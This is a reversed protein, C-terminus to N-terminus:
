RTHRLDALVDPLLPLLDGALLGAEGHQERWREGAGAHLYAGCIAADVPSLGQALVGAICGTLVDGTGAVALASNAYPLVIGGNEPYAVVSFAGKLLVIHGWRAAYELAREMRNSQIDQVSVGTLRAMEGPHPTLISRAPLLAPWNPLNALLNLADADVILRAGGAKHRLVEFLGFLFPKTAEDQGLGPGVIIAHRADLSAVNAALRPLAEPSLVDATGSLTLFTAERCLVAAGAQIAHPVALTVLGAGVRYAATAALTPAGAYDSCGGVVLVKGYSGKNASPSRAPLKARILEGDALDLKGTAPERAGPDIGIPVVVLEGGVGAAPYCYHGRKPAHFTITLDAPAALADLAGTDYNMGTVGDLAVLVPRPDRERTARLQKLIEALAGDIPRSVGTGLLADVIVDSQALVQRLLEGRADGDADVVPIGRERVPKFVPDDPPRAKLLYVQVIAAGSLRGDVNADFMAQACVLGDGGNNGPGALILIRAPEDAGKGLADLWGSLRGVITNAAATGAHRMMQSYSLGGADAAREVERMQAVTLISKTM